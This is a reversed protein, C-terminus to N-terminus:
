AIAWKIVERSALSRLLVSLKEIDGYLERVRQEAKRADIITRRAEDMWKNSDAIVHFQDVVERALPFVAEVAKRLGEKM